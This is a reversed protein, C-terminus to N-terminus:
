SISSKQGKILNKWIRYLSYDIKRKMEELSIDNAQAMDRLPEDEASDLIDRMRNVDRMTRFMEAQGRADDLANHTHPWRRSHFFRPIQKKTTEGWSTNAMGMWYAKIDCGSIGFPNEKLFTIFYWHVFMWDFTANFAIFVPRAGASANQMWKAFRQMAKKPEEGKKKLEEMTIRCAELAAPVHNENLLKIEAFFSKTEDDVGCAGLQYM